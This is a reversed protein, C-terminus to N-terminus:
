VLNTIPYVVRCERCLLRGQTVVAFYLVEFSESDISVLKGFSSNLPRMTKVFENTKFVQLGDETMVSIEM